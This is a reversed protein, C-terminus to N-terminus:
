TVQSVEPIGEFLLGEQEIQYAAHLAMYAGASIKYVMAAALHVDACFGCHAQIIVDTGTPCITCNMLRLIAPTHKGISHGVVFAPPRGPLLMHEKIFAAKHQIQDKLNYSGQVGM